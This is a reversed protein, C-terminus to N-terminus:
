WIPLFIFASLGFVIASVLCLLRWDKEETGAEFELSRINDNAGARSGSRGSIRRSFLDPGSLPRGSILRGLSGDKFM